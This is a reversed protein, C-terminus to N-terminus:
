AIAQFDILWIGVSQGANKEFIEDPVSHEYMGQIGSRIDVRVGLILSYILGDNAETM